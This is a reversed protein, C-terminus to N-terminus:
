FKDIKEEEEMKEVVSKIAENCIKSRNLGFEKAKENVDKEILVLVKVKNSTRKRGM